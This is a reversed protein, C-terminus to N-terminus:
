SLCALAELRLGVVSLQECARLDDIRVVDLVSEHVSTGQRRLEGLTGTSM